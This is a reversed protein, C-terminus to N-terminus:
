QRAPEDRWRARGERLEYHQEFIQRLAQVQSLARLVAPTSAHSLAQLLQSMDAGMQAILAARQSQAKPFRTLEFLHVYRDFWDPTVWSLLWAEGEEQEALANLTARIAEGVSEIRHLQRVTALVYTADTRQKGGAKLLGRERAIHLIPELVVDQAGADTLHQRFDSLTSFDPGEEEVSLSLAYKWDLRNSVMEAAQRDSLGEMFQFVTILALRWPAEAKRGQKPFLHAFPEDDYTPGLADRLNTISSGKRLANRVIQVTEEPIPELGQPKMSM